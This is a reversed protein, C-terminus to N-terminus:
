EKVDSDFNLVKWEGDEKILNVAFVYTVGDTGEIEYVVEATAASGTEGSVSTSTKSEETNLIPGIQDVVAIFQDEPVEAQAETSFLNYATQGDGAQLANVFEDSAATAGSTASQVILFMGVIFVVAIGVVWLIIKKTKSMGKKEPKKAETPKVEKVEKETKTDKAKSKKEEAM